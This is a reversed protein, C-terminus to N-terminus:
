QNRHKTSMQKVLRCAFKQQHILYGQALLVDVLVLHHVLFVLMMVHGVSVNNILFLLLLAHRLVRSMHQAQGSSFLPSLQHQAHFANTKVLVGAVLVVSRHVHSVCNKKMQSPALLVSVLARIKLCLGDVHRFHVSMRVLVRNKLNM